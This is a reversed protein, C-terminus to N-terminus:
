IEGPELKELGVLRNSKKVQLFHKQSRHKQLYLVQGSNLRGM